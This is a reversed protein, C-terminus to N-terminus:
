EDKLDEESINFFMKVFDETQYYSDLQESNLWKIAEQKLFELEDLKADIILRASSLPKHQKKSEELQEKRDKLTKLEM